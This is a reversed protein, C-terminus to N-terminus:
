GARQDPPRDREAAEEAARKAAQDARRADRERRADDMALSRSPMLRPTQTPDISVPPILWVIRSKDIEIEWGYNHLLLHHYRCLLIGNDINTAGSDRQWHEVHHAETWCPPRDCDPWMCGGDRVALATRQAPTFLRKKRGVDIPQLDDEDVIVEQTEGNCIMREITEVSVPLEQDSELRGHGTGKELTEETVIVRVVPAGSGLMVSSDADAGQVITEILVDSLYQQPTREDAAIQDAKAQEDKDVFRPGGLKPSVARDRFEKFIAATEPDMDWRVHTIGDSDPGSVWVGRKQRRAEERDAIGAEDLEDRMRRAQRFLDDSNLGVVGADLIAAAQAALVLAADALMAITVDGTPEGLGTRISALAAATLRGEAVLPAIAALWPALPPTAPVGTDDDPVKTAEHIIRGPRVADVADKRSGGTTIRMMNEPTGFGKRRALSDSGRELASREAIVGAALAEPTGSLQKLLGAKRAVTEIEDDDVAKYATVDAGLDRLVEAAADLREILAQGSFTM